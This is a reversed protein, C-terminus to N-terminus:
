GTVYTHGATGPLVPGKYSLSLSLIQGVDLRQSRLPSSTDFQMELRSIRDEGRVTRFRYQDEVLAGEAAAAEKKGAAAAILM